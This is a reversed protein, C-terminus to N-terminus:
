WCWWLCPLSTVFVVVAAAVRPELYPEVVRRGGGERRVAAWQEWEVEVGVKHERLEVDVAAHHAMHAPERM